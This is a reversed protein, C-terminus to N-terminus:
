NCTLNHQAKAIGTPPCTLCCSQCGEDGNIGVGWYLGTPPRQEGGYCIKAGNICAVPVASKGGFSEIIWAQDGGPSVLDHDVDFLRYQIGKGDNCGDSLTWEVLGCVLNVSVTSNSCTSCCNECSSDGNLGVGWFMNQSDDDSAGHCIKAGTKCSIPLNVTNGSGVTYVQNSSPYIVGNDDDFLRVHLGNGDPCGDSIKWTMTSHTQLTTTTTTTTTGGACALTVNHGVAYRLIRLADTSTINGDGNVDCAALACSFSGVSSRLALQADGAKVSGDGSADGCQPTVANPFIQFSEPATPSYRAAEFNDRGVIAYGTEAIAYPSVAAISMAVLLPTVVPHFTSM